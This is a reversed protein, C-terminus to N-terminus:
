SQEKNIEGGLDIDIYKLIIDYHNVNKQKNFSVLDDQDLKLVEDDDYSDFLFGVIDVSTVQVIDSDLGEETYIIFDFQYTNGERDNGKIEVFVGEDTTQSRSENRGGNEILLGGMKLVEISTILKAYAEESINFVENLKVKNLKNMVEFLKKRADIKKRVSM